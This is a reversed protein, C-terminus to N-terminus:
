TRDRAITLPNVSNSNIRAGGSVRDLEGDSLERDDTKGCERVLTEADAATVVWGRRSAVAAADDFSSASLFEARFAADTELATRLGTIPNDM